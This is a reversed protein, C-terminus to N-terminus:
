RLFTLTALSSFNEVAKVSGVVTVIIEYLFM